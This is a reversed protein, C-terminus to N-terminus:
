GSVHFACVAKNAVVMDIEISIGNSVCSKGGGGGSGPIAVKQQGQFVGRGESEVMGADTILQPVGILAATAGQQCVGDQKKSRTHLDDARM